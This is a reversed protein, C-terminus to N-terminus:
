VRDPGQLREAAAPFGACTSHDIHLCHGAANTIPAAPPPCANTFLRMLSPLQVPMDIVLLAALTNAIPFPPYLPGDDKVLSCDLEAASPVRMFELLRHLSQTPANLSATDFFSEWHLRASMVHPNSSIGTALAASICWLLQCRRRPTLRIHPPQPRM